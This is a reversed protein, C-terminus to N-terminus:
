LSVQIVDVTPEILEIIEVEYFCYGFKIHFYSGNYNWYCAMPQPYRKLRTIDQRRRYKADNSEITRPEIARKEPVIRGTMTSRINSM